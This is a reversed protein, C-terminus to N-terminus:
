EHDKENGESVVAIEGDKIVLIVRRMAQMDELPDGDVVIMDALMGPALTGLENGHGCVTAARATGAQLVEMTSLDAQMLFQMERLPMGPEVGQNGYDTGLAVMGGLDHFRRVVELFLKSCLPQYEEPMGYWNTNCIRPMVSLTPVMVVHQEIMRALQAEYDAPLKLHDKDETAAKWDAESFQPIPMHEIVDVGADLTVDLLDARTVHVRVLRGRAHAEEAIAKVEQPSLVPWSVGTPGPELAIKIVDAGRNVLDAVAARAEDPNAVEYNL